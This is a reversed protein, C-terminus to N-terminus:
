GVSTSHRRYKILPVSINACLGLLALQGFLIYDEALRNVTISDTAPVAKLFDAGYAAGLRRIAQFNLAAAPHVVPYYFFAAASVARAGPPVRLYGTQAGNADIVVA